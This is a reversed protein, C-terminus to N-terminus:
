SKDQELFEIAMAKVKPDNMILEMWYDIDGEPMHRELAEALEILYESM